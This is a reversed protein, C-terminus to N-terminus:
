WSSRLLTRRTRMAGPGITRSRVARTLPASRQARREAHFRTAGKVRRARERDEAIVPAVTGFPEM